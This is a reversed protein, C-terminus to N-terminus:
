LKTPEKPGTGGSKSRPTGRSKSRPTMASSARGGRAAGQQLAGQFLVDQGCWRRELQELVFAGPLSRATESAVMPIAHVDALIRPAVFIAARDALGADLLAAHVHAGGEVLLRVVGRRALERLSAEIDIGGGARARPLAALQVGSARLQAARAPDAARGHLILTPVRAASTVLKAGLPTRLRTDLVVRMPSRGRVARVTLEPDDALVTGVGVLVADSEVRLRHAERRAEPGTIWKSEGSRAATMGDLTVAAKLTVFPLGQRQVKRFDAVLQEARAVLEPARIQDVPLNAVGARGSRGRVGPAACGVVIRVVGATALASLVPVAARGALGSTLYLTTGQARAGALELAHLAAHPADPRRQYGVSILESARALVAGV